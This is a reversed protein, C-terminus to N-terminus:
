HKFFGVILGAGFIITRLLIIAPSALGVWIDKMFNRISEPLTTVFLLLFLILSNIFSGNYIDFALILIFVYFIGIQVKLLQPTYTDKVAKRKHKKYLYVRWNARNFKKKLYDSLHDPHLHYVIAKNNFLMKLGKKSLRYSLDSDEGSAIPFEEDFGHVSLLASKRYAASYSGIFDIYKWKAMREYRNDIELQVFRSILGTQKTMYKGQVGIIGPEEFPLLMQVLWNNTPICDSDIFVIIDGKANEVGRNRAAAPGLHEQFILRVSHKSVIEKTKDISGDDVVIVEFDKETQLKLAKLTAGITNEANYVPIVISAKM